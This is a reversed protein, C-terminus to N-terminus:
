DLSDHIAQDDVSEFDNSSFSDGYDDDNNNNKSEVKRMQYM